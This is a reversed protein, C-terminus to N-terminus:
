KLFMQSHTAMSVSRYIEVKIKIAILIFINKQLITDFIRAMLIRYSQNYKKDNIYQIRKVDSKFIEFKDGHLSEAYYFDENKMTIEGIVKTGSMLESIYCHNEKVAILKNQVM